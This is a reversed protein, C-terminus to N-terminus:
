TGSPPDLPAPRETLGDAIGADLGSPDFGAEEGLLPM